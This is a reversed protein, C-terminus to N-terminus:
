VITITTKFRDAHFSFEGIVIDRPKNDGCKGASLYNIRKKKRKKGKKRKKKKKNEKM